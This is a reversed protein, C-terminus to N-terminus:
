LESVKAKEQCSNLLEARPVMAGNNISQNKHKQPYTQWEMNLIDRNEGESPISKQYISYKEAM